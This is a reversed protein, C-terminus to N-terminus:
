VPAKEPFAQEWQGADVPVDLGVKVRSMAVLTKFRKVNNNQFFLQRTLETYQEMNRVTIILVFDCEGTVYYCQQVLPCAQFSRKMEDLRDIQESEVEVQAVITLSYGLAEPSVVATYKEIVGEDALRKLRRNVAATSLHVRAGLESQPLRADRQVEAVLKRDYVDLTTTM